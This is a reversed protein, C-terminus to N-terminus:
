GGSVGNCNGSNMRAVDPSDDPCYGACYGRLMKRLLRRLKRTTDPSDDPCNGPLSRDIVSCYRTCNGPVMGASDPCQVSLQRGISPCRGLRMRRLTWAITPFIGASDRRRERVRDAMNTYLGHDPRLQLAASDLGSSFRTRPCANDANQVTGASLASANLGCVAVPPIITRNHM